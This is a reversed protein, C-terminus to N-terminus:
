RTLLAGAIEGVVIAALNTNARPVFPFISADAVRLGSIGLVRCESDVVTAPDTEPGMRCTSTAHQTDVAAGLMFADLEEDDDLARFLAANAKAPHVACIDVVADHTVLETLLRVGARLRRRDREESLMRERIEPQVLPDRSRPRVVGNSFVRNLWVGISGAGAATNAYEM